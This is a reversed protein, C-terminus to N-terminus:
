GGLFEFHQDMGGGRMSKLDLGPALPPLGRLGPIGGASGGSGAIGGSAVGSSIRRAAWRALDRLWHSLGTAPTARRQVECWAQNAMTAVAPTWPAGRSVTSNLLAGAEWMHQKEQSNQSNQLDEPTSSTSSSPGSTVAESDVQPVTEAAKLPSAPFAFHQICATSRNTFKAGLSAQDGHVGRVAMPLGLSPIAVRPCFTLVPFDRVAKCRALAAIFAADGNAANWSAEGGACARLFDSLTWVASFTQSARAIKCAPTDAHIVLLSRRASWDTPCKSLEAQSAVRGVFSSVAEPNLVEAFDIPQGRTASHLTHLPMTVFVRGTARAAILHPILSLVQNGYGSQHVVPQYFSEDCPLTATYSEGLGALTLVLALKM